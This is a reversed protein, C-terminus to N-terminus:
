LTIEGIGALVPPSNATARHPRKQISTEMVSIMKIRNANKQRAPAPAAAAWQLVNEDKDSRTLGSQSGGGGDGTSVASTNLVGLFLAM